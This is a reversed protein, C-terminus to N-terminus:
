LRLLIKKLFDSIKKYKQEFCVNHTSTLVAEALRNKHTGCDINKVLFLFFLTYGQLGWNYYIFTLNLPAFNYLCTKTIYVAATDTHLGDQVPVM